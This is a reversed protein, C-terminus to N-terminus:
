FCVASMTLQWDTKCTVAQSKVLMSRAAIAGGICPVSILELLFINNKM